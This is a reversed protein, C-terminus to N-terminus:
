SAIMAAPMESGKEILRGDDLVLIMDCKKLTSLRHAIMFTTRGRMLRDMAEMIMAETKIDVSSTPEDLILIPADKLFARALAIRQRQGGSLRMGREGVRTDYGEPLRQIFEDANATVAANFIDDASASPHAYAINEAISGSFLVPEQLVIAFQERLDALRYNRLDIGDLLIHGSSPDYFRILLNVLTTKGAGTRGAIGVRTGAPIESFIDSLVPYVGDYSFSVHDFRIAGSARSLPRADAKERVDTPEDLLAFAREASALGEQLKTSQQGITQLPQYLQTLYSMVLLLQGLTLIGSQVHKVGIFLVAATGIALTMGVTLGFLSEAVVVRLRAWLSQNSCHMFRGHEREEQRFAKVVRLASLVEQIVSLASTELNKVDRWQERLRKRFLQILLLLIPSVTLAILALQWDIQMTVFLMGVLTFGGTLFPMIGSIIVWQIAPADYQIRYIADATGKSDHYAFSLRQARYLLQSRFHLVLKQGTYTQLLRNALKRGQNLLAILIVLGAILFLSTNPSAIVSEPIVAQLFGPLPESGLVSDVALMLPVPTLLALPTALLGLLFIIGVHFWHHRAEQLLRKLIALDSRVKAAM